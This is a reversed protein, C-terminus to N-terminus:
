TEKTQKGTGHCLECPMEYQQHEGRHDCRDYIFYGAGDCYGCTQKVKEDKLLTRLQRTREEDGERESWHLQLEIERM